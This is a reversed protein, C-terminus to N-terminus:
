EVVKLEFGFTSGKGYVSHVRMKGQHREVINKVLHLGLGTGEIKATESTKARFFPQFLRTQQEEPIGIGSDVVEFVASKTTSGNLSLRVNVTGKEPTYKIANSILNDIAERLQAIDGKVKVSSDPLDLNYVQEKQRAKVASEVFLSRVLDVLDIEEHQTGTPLAEIRQLSLIDGIIKQMKKGGRYISEIFEKQDETLSASDELLLESFGLVQGLPNRLDHAAIRIMDTKLQELESVRAYLQHMDKLQQQSVEYLQANDIALTIRGAILKVFDFADQTFLEPQPTELDLIGIQRNRYILPVCMKARTGPIHAIYDPDVHVDLLLEPEQSRLVRGVIGTTKDIIHGRRYRGMPQVIEIADDRFLGIYGDSAGTLRLATDAAILLVSELNLSHSLENEIERLSILQELTDQLIEEASVRDTIDVSVGILGNVEGDSDYFPSYWVEFTLDKYEALASVMEGEFVRRMRSITEPRDSFYEFVNRGVFENPSSGLTELGKGITMTVVGDRDTTFLILPVSGIIARLQAESQRIAEEMQKRETIDRAAGVIQRVTGDPNRSFVTDRTAIWRWEGKADKMRYENDLVDGDKAQALQRYYARTVAVDDPHTLSALLDVQMEKVDDVPYGLMQYVERSVFVNRNEILDYVYIADPTADIVGQLLRQSERFAEDALKRATIDQAVGIIQSVTGDYARKFALNRSNIWRWEGKADKMRYEIEFVDTDTGYQLQELHQIVHLVDDPHILAHISTQELHVDPPYGLMRKVQRNSYINEQDNVDLVYVADPITHFIRQVFLDNERLAAEVKQRELTEAQLEIETMASQTLEALIDLEEDTWQRPKTDLVCFAGIVFENKTSLPMAAYAAIKQELVVPHNSLLPHKNTDGVILPHNAAVVHQCLSHSMPLERVISLPKELGYESKIYERDADVLSILAIPVKLIRSAFRTLRDFSPDAPTDLLALSRLKELREPNRILDAPPM